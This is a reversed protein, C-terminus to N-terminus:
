RRWLLTILVGLAVAGVLSEIPRDRVVGVARDEYHSLERGLIEVGKDAGERAAKLGSRGQKSAEGALKELRGSLREIEARLERATRDGGREFMDKGKEIVTQM